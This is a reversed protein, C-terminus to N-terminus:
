GELTGNTLTLTGNVVLTDGAAITKAVGNGQALTLNWLDASGPVDLTAAAGILRLTGNAHAFTGASHTLDGVVSLTGRTSTFSGGSLTYPGNVTIAATGGSFAGGAQSYGSAGLTITRGAQTLTGAYAADVELGAVAINVDVTAPKASSADFRAIDGTGPVVNTSWNAAESWNNTAGGGDWTLTAGLVPDPQGAASALVFLIGTALAM